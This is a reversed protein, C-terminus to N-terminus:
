GVIYEKVLEQMLATIGAQDARVEKSDTSELVVFNVKHVQTPSGALGLKDPEAGV